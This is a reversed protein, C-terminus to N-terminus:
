TVSVTFNKGEVLTNGFRFRTGAPNFGEGAITLVKSSQYMSVEEHNEVSMSHGKMDAQMEAITVGGLDERLRLIGAGTNIAVLKLPGPEDAWRKGENTHVLSVWITTPSKVQLVYIDTDEVLPPSFYLATRKLGFNTGNIMVRQSMTLYLNNNSPNVTPTPIVSAVSVPETILPEGQLSAEVLLLLYSAWRQGPTLELLITDDSLVIARPLAGGNPMQPEFKLSLVDEVTLLGFGSGRIKLKPQTDYVMRARSQFMVPKENGIGRAARLGVWALALPLARGFLVM